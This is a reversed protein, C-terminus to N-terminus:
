VDSILQTRAKMGEISLVPSLNGLEGLRRALADDILTGNSYM